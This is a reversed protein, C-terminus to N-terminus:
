TNGADELHFDSIIDERHPLFYRDSCSEMEKKNYWFGSIIDVTKMCAWFVRNIRVYLFRIFLTKECMYLLPEFTTREHLSQFGPFLNEM